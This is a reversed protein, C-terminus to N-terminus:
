LAEVLRGALTLGTLVPNVSGATPFLASRMRLRQQRSSIARGYGHRLKGALGGDLADGGRPVDHRTGSAVSSVPRDLPFPTTQWGGDYLYQINAPSRAIQQALALACQDMAQWVQQDAATANINIQVHARSVGFEDLEYPSLDIWSGSPYALGPFEVNGRWPLGWVLERPVGPDSAPHIADAVNLGIRALNQVHESVMFRGADLLLVRKGSHRRFSQRATAGYMGAGVVVASFPAGGSATAEDWTSCIYRALADVSFSTTQVPVKGAPLRWTPFPCPGQRYRSSRAPVVTSDRRTVGGQAGV